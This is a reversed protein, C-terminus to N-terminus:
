NKCILPVCRFQCQYLIILGILLIPITLLQGQSFFGYKLGLQADPQRIFEVLFRCISYNILFISTIIGKKTKKIRFIILLVIAPILGEFSGGGGAAAPGMPGAGPAEGEFSGGPVFESAPPAFFVDAIQDGSLSEAKAQLGYAWLMLTLLFLLRVM